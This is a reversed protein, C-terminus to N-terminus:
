KHTDECIDLILIHTVQKLDIGGDSKRPIPEHYPQFVIRWQKEIDVTFEEDRDKVLQHRRCPPQCPVDELCDLDQLNQMRTAIKKARVKGYKKILANKSELLKKLKKNRCSIDM